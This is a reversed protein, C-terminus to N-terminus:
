RENLSAGEAYRRFIKEVLEAEAPHIVIEGMTMQYGFPLKRNGM